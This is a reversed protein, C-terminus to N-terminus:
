LFKCKLAADQQVELKGFVDKLYNELEERSGGRILNEMQTVCEAALELTKGHQFTRYPFGPITERCKAQFYPFQDIRALFLAALDQTFLGHLDDVLLIPIRGQRQHADAVANM